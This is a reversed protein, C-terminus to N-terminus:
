EKNLEPILFFKEKNVTFYAPEFPPFWCARATKSVYFKDDLEKIEKYAEISERTYFRPSGIMKARPIDEDRLINDLLNRFCNEGAMVSKQYLSYATDSEEIPFEKQYAVEGYDVKETMWHLTVGYTHEQNMIAHNFAYYGQYEPLKALHLNLANFDVMQLTEQKLIWNHQVSLIQNVGYKLIYENLQKDDKRENSFFPIGEKHCIEYIRNSRWWVNNTKNSSVILEIKEQKWLEYLLFFCREGIEKQGLYLIVKKESM